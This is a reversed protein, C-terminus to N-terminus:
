ARYVFGSVCFCCVTRRRALVSDCSSYLQTVMWSLCQLSHVDSSYLLGSPNRCASYYLSQGFDSEGSHKPQEVRSIVSSPRLRVNSSLIIACSSARRRVVVIGHWVLLSCFSKFSCRFTDLPCRLRETAGLLPEVTSLATDTASRLLVKM